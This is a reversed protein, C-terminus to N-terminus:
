YLAVIKSVMTQANFRTLVRERAASALPRRLNEDRLLDVIAKALCRSDVSRREGSKKLPVVLGSIGDEVMEPLGGADSCIVPVAAAM